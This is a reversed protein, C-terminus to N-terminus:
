CIYMMTQLSSAIAFKAGEAKKDIRAAECGNEVSEQKLIAHLSLTNKTLSKEFGIEGGESTAQLRVKEMASMSSNWQAAGIRTHTPMSFSDINLRTLSGLITCMCYMCCM